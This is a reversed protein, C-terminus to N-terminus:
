STVEFFVVPRCKKLSRIFRDFITTVPFSKMPQGKKIYVARQLVISRNVATIEPTLNLKEFAM